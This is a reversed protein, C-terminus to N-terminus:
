VKRHRRITTIAGMLALGSALLAMTAPEPATTIVYGGPNDAGASAPDSSSEGWGLPVTPTARRVDWGTSALGTPVTGIGRGPGNPGALDSASRLASLFVWMAPSYGPWDLGSSFAQARLMASQGDGTQAALPVAVATMTVFAKTFGSIRM